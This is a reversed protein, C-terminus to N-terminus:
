CPKSNLAKFAELINQETWTGRQNNTVIIDSVINHIILVDIEQLETTRSNSVHIFSIPSSQYM